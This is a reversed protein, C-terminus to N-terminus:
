DLTYAVKRRHIKEPKGWWFELSQPSVVFWIYKGPKVGTATFRKATYNEILLHKKKDIINKLENCIGSFEQRVEREYNNVYDLTHSRLLERKKANLNRIKYFGAKYRM